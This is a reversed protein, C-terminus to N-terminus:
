LSRYTQFDELKTKLIKMVNDKTLKNLGDPLDTIFEIKVPKMVESFCSCSEMQLKQPSYVILSWKRKLGENWVIGYLSIAEPLCLVKLENLDILQDNFKFHSMNNVVLEINGEDTIRVQDRTKLYHDKFKEKPLNLAMYPSKILLFGEGNNAIQDESNLIKCEVRDIPRGLQYDENHIDNNLKFTTVRPGAETLGYTIYIEARTSAALLRLQSQASWDSGISIKHFHDLSSRHINMFSDLLRPTLYLVSDVCSKKYDDFDNSLECFEVECGTELPTWIFICIGFAHDTNIVKIIKSDSSLNQSHAHARANLRAREVSYFYLKPKSTSGSSFVGYSSHPYQEGHESNKKHCFVNGNKVFICSRPQDNLFDKISKETWYKPIIVPVKGADLVSLFIFIQRLDNSDQIIVHNLDHKSIESLINQVFNLVKCSDQSQSRIKLMYKSLLM